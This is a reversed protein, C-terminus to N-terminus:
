VLGSKQLAPWHLRQTTGASLERPDVWAIDMIEDRDQTWGADPDGVVSGQFVFAVAHRYGSPGSFCAEQVHVPVTSSAAFRYGTEERCEREAGQLLPEGVEV